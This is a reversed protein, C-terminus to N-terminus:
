QCKDTKDPPPQPPPTQGRNKLEFGLEKLFGLVKGKRAAAEILTIALWAGACSGVVFLAVGTIIEKLEM